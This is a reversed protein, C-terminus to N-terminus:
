FDARAREVWYSEDFEFSSEDFEFSPEDNKEPEATEVAVAAVADFTEKNMMGLRPIGSNIEKIMRDFKALRKDQMQKKAEDEKTTEFKSENYRFENVDTASGIYKDNQYLYVKKVEGNESPLWYAQVNADGPQLRELTEYDDLLYIGNDCRLHNNSRIETATENGIFRYLYWAEARPLDRNVNQLFVERRTMGAYKEANPHVSDNHTEIDRLDDTVIDDYEYEKETFEGKSKFRIGRYAGRGFFRGVTHGNKHAAGWKLARIAHEARKNRSHSSVTTFPFLAKFEADSMLADILHHEHELEGPVPLGLQELECFMNKFCQAADDKTLADRSYVPTFWYGSAVDFAMYRHVRGGGKMKRSLDADDMSVKSLSYEPPRRFHHPRKEVVAVYHGDRRASTAADNTFKRLYYAVTSISIESPRPSRDGTKPVYRFDEPRFIEGTESDFFEKRGYVFDTYLEHVENKFPKNHSTWLALLLRETTASVKRSSDNETQPPILSEYGDDTYRKIAREFSRVNIYPSLGVTEAIEAYRSCAQGFFEKKCLRKGNRALAATRERLMEVIAKFASARLVYEGIKDSSLPEGGRTRWATYYARAQEDLRIPAEKKLMREPEGFKSIIALRREARKISSWIIEVRSGRCGRSAVQLKGARKDNEYDSIKLGSEEWEDLTLLIDLGETRM